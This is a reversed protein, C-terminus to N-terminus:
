LTGLLDKMVGIEHQQTTIINKALAIADPNKGNSIEAQAMKIAGQHHATMLQLYIKQGTKGDARDFDELQVDTAMGDDSGHDMGGMSGGMEQQGWASLFGKMTDIEPQQAAKIQEALATVDPNVGTKALLTESMAVAQEHHPLMMQVFMVDSSNFEASVSTNASPSAAPPASSSPATSTENDSCGALGLTAALALAALNTTLTRQNKM